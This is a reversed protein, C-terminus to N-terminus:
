SVRYANRKCLTIYTRHRNFYPSLKACIGGELNNGVIPISIRLLYRLNLHLVASSNEGSKNSPVPGVICLRTNHCQLTFLRYNTLNLDSGGASLTKNSTQSHTLFTSHSFGRSTSVFKLIHEDMWSVISSEKRCNSRINVAPELQSRKSNGCSVPSKSWFHGSEANIVITRIQNNNFHRATLNNLSTISQKITDCTAGRISRESHSISIGMQCRSHFVPDNGKRRIRVIFPYKGKRHSSDNNATLNQTATFEAVICLITGDSQIGGLSSVNYDTRHSFLFQFDKLINCGASVTHDSRPVRFSIHAKSCIVLKNNQLAIGTNRFDELAQVIAQIKSSQQTLQPQSLIIKRSLNHSSVHIEGCCSM